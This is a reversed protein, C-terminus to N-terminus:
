HIQQILEENWLDYRFNGFQPNNINESKILFDDVKQSLEPLEFEGDVLGYAMFDEVGIEFRSNEEWMNLLRPSSSLLTKIISKGMIGMHSGKLALTPDGGYIVPMSLVSAGGYCRGLAMGIKPYPYEIIDQTLEAVHRIIENETEDARPDAGPTDVMSIIPLGLKKFLALSDRYKQITPTDIMNGKGVPNIMVGVRRGNKLAIYTHVRAKNQGFIEFRMDYIQNLLAASKDDMSCRYGPIIKTEFFSQVHQYLLERSEFVEHIHNTLSQVRNVNFTSPFDCKEGFFMRYVEPGTLNLESGAQAIRYHGLVYLLAGIGLCRGHTNTILLNEKAFNILAPIIAFAFPFVKRGEMIRVGMSCLSLFLPCKQATLEALFQVFRTSNEIGFSGALVKFENYAIAFSHTECEVKLTWLGDFTIRMSSSKRERPVFAYVALADSPILGKLAKLKDIEDTSLKLWHYKGMEIRGFLTTILIQLAGGRQM